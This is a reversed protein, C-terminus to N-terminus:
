ESKSEKKERKAASKKISLLTLLKNLSQVRGNNFNLAGRRALLASKPEQYDKQYIYLWYLYKQTSYVIANWLQIPHRYIPISDEGKDQFSEKVQNRITTTRGASNSNSEPSGNTTPDGVAQYYALQKWVRERHLASYLQGNLNQERPRGWFHTRSQCDLLPFFFDILDTNPCHLWTVDFHDTRPSLDMINQKKKEKKKRKGGRSREKTPHQDKGALCVTTRSMAISSM